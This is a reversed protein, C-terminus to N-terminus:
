LVRDAVERALLEMARPRDPGIVHWANLGRLGADAYERLRKAVHDPDGAAAFTDILGDTVLRAGAEVGETQATRRVRDIEDPDAGSTSLVVPEVRGAYYALV